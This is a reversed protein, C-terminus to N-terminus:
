YPDQGSRVIHRGRLKQSTRGPRYYTAFVVSHLRAQACARLIYYELIVHFRNGSRSSKKSLKVFYNTYTTPRSLLPRKM